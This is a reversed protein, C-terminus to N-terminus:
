WFVAFTQLDYDGLYFSVPNQAKCKRGVYRRQAMCAALTCKETGMHIFQFLKIDTKNQRKQQSSQRSNAHLHYLSIASSPVWKGLHQQGGLRPWNLWLICPCFFSTGGRREEEQVDGTDYYLSFHWVGNRQLISQFYSTTLFTFFLFEFSQTNSWKLLLLFWHQEPFRYM